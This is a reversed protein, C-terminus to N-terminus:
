MRRELGISVATSLLPANYRESLGQIAENDAPTYGTLMAIWDKQRITGNGGDRSLPTGRLWQEVYKGDNVKLVELDPFCDRNAHVYPICDPAFRFLPTGDRLFAERPAIGQNYIYKVAAYWDQLILDVPHIASRMEQVNPRFSVGTFFEELAHTADQNAARPGIFYDTAIVDSINGVIGFAGVIIGQAADSTLYRAPFTRLAHTVLHAVLHLTQSNEPALDGESGVPAYENLM